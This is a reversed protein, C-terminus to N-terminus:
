PYRLTGMSGRQNCREDHRSERCVAFPVVLTISLNIKRRDQVHQYLILGRRVQLVGSHWHYYHEVCSWLIPPCNPLLIYSASAPLVVYSSKAGLNFSCKTKTM